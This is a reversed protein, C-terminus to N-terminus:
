TKIGQVINFKLYDFFFDQQINQVDKKLGKHASNNKPFFFINENEIIEQILYCLNKFDKIM